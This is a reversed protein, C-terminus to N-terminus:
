QLQDLFALVEENIAGLTVESDTTDLGRDLLNTVIPTVRGLDTMGLHGSGPLYVVRDEPGDPLAVETHAPGELMDKAVDSYFYLIPVPYPGEGEGAVTICELAVVDVVDDRERGLALASAGGLSHGMAVVEDHPLEDLFQKDPPHRHHRRLAPYVDHAEFPRRLRGPLRPQGARPLSVRQQVDHRERRPLLGCTPRDAGHRRAGM